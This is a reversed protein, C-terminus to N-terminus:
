PIEASVTPTWEGGRWKIPFVLKVTQTANHALFIPLEKKMNVGAQAISGPVITLGDSGNNIVTIDLIAVYDDFMGATSAVVGAIVPRPKVVETAPSTTPLNNTAAASSPGGGWCATGLVTALLGVAVVGALKKNKM